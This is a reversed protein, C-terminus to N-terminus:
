KERGVAAFKKHLNQEKKDKRKSHTSRAIKRAQSYNLAVYLNKDHFYNSVNKILVEHNIGAPEGESLCRNVKTYLHCIRLCRRGGAM